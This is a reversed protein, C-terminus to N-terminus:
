LVTYLIFLLVRYRTCNVTHLSGKYKVPQETLYESDEFLCPLRVKRM